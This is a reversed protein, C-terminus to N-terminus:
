GVNLVLDTGRRTPTLRPLWTPTSPLEPTAPREPVKTKVEGNGGKQQQQRWREPHQQQPLAMDAARTSGVRKALLSPSFAPSSAATTTTALAEQSNNDHAAADYSPSTSARPPRWPDPRDQPKYPRPMPMGPYRSLSNRHDGPLTPQQQLRSRSIPYMPFPHPLHSPPRRRPPPQPTSSSSSPLLARDDRAPEPSPSVIRLTPPGGTVQQQPPQPTQSPPAPRLVGPPGGGAMDHSPPRMMMPGGRGRMKGGGGRSYRPPDSPGRAHLPPLPQQKQLQPFPITGHHQTTTTTPGPSGHRPQAAARSLAPPAVGPFKARGRLAPTGRGPIRPYSVPSVGGGSSTESAAVTVPPDTFVRSDRGSSSGATSSAAAAAGATATRPPSEAVPSLNNTSRAGQTPLPPPPPPPPAPHLSNRNYFDASVASSISFTTIGSDTSTVREQGGVPRATLLRGNNNSSADHITEAPNPPPPYSASSSNRPNSQRSFLPSPVTKAVLSRIRSTPTRPEERPRTDERKLPTAALEQPSTPRQQQTESTPPPERPSRRPPPIQTEVATAVIGTRATAIRPLVESSGASLPSRVDGGLVWNGRGDSVYYPPSLGSAPLPPAVATTASPPPCWIQGAATSSSRRLDDEEFETHTSERGGPPPRQLLVEKDEAAAFPPPPTSPPPEADPIFLRLSPPRQAPRRMFQAAIPHLLDQQQKPVQTGRSEQCSSGKPPAPPPTPSTTITRSIAAAAAPQQQMDPKAPLLKSLPRSPRTPTNGRTPPTNARATRDALLKSPSIALGIASPRWSERNYPLRHNSDNNNNNYGNNPGAAPAPGAAGSMAPYRSLSGGTVAWPSSRGSGNNPKDFGYGWTDRRTTVVGYGGPPSNGGFSSGSYRRRRRRVFARTLLFIGLVLGAAICVAGVSIGAIQGKSLPEAAPAAAATTPTPTSTTSSSSSATTTTTQSSRTPTDTILTTPTSTTTATTSSPSTKTTGATSTPTPIPLPPSASTTIPAFTLIGSQSAYKLTATIVGGRAKAVDTQASCIDNAKSTAAAGSADDGCFGVSQEAALCQLAGESITFGSRGRHACVFDLTLYRDSDDGRAYNVQLFSALCIAACTPVSETVGDRLDSPVDAAVDTVSIAWTTTRSAVLFVLPTIFAHRTRAM